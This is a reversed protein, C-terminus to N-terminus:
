GATVKYILTEYPHLLRGGNRDQERAEEKGTRYIIEQKKGIWERTRDDDAFVPYAARDSLNVLLLYAEDGSRRMYSIVNPESHRIFELEGRWFAPSNTRLHILFRYHEFMDKDFPEWALRYEHFLSTWDAYTRENFEQGMMLFPIGEMTMLLTAAPTTLREGFYDRIRSQEKEELWSMRLAGKPFSYKYSDYIRIFENQTINGERIANILIRPNGDYTLDCSDIHHFEDYSQSILAISRKVKSLEQRIEALFDHPTIDSDDLRFGDFDFGALWYKMADIIYSRMEGNDFNLGAFYERNPVEYYVENNDKRTFFEPHSKTLLHDVSGRNMVWDMIVRIGNRHAESIFFKLEEATGFRSDISYFDKVAYPDGYTGIRKEQGVEQFPMLWLVNIGLEKFYGIKETLGRFGNETFARIHLEYIVANKIWEPSELAQYNEYMFGPNRESVENTRIFVEGDEMVTMASNNQGDESVNPNLPDLIWRDGNVVIKYLHRGKPIGIELEWRNNSVETMAYKEPNWSNFTGAVSVGQIPTDSFYRFLVGQNGKRPIRNMTEM